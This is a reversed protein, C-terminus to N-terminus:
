AAETVVANHVNGLFLALVRARLEKVILSGFLTDDVAHGSRADLEVENVLDLLLHVAQEKVMNSASLIRTGPNLLHPAHTGGLTCAEHRSCWAGQLLGVEGPARENFFLQGEVKRLKSGCVFVQIKALVLYLVKDARQDHTQGAGRGRLGRLM